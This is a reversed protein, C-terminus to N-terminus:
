RLTQRTRRVLMQAPQQQQGGYPAASHLSTKQCFIVDGWAAHAPRQSKAIEGCVRRLRRPLGPQILRLPLFQHGSRSLKRAISPLNDRIQDAPGSHSSRRGSQNDSARGLRM